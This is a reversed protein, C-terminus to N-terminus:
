FLIRTDSCLEGPAKWGDAKILAQTSEVEWFVMELIYFSSRKELWRKTAYVSLEFTRIIFFLM